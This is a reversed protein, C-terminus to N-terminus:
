DRSGDPMLYRAKRQKLNANVASTKPKIGSVGKGEWKEGNVRLKDTGSRSQSGRSPASVWDLGEFHM